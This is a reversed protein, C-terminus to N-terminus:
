SQGLKTARDIAIDCMAESAARVEGEHTGREIRRRMDEMVVERSRGNVFVVYRLGPFRAEYEENLKALQAREEEDGLSQQEAQSQASDVKKAGLRPHAALIEILTPDTPPLALLTKRTLNALDAYSTLQTHSRIKPVLIANLAPSPEFLLSLIQHIAEDPLFHLSSAPPLSTMTSDPLPIELHTSSIPRTKLKVYVHSSFRQVKTVL